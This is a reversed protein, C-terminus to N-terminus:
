FPIEDDVELQQISTEYNTSNNAENEWPDQIAVGNSNHTNTELNQPQSSQPMKSNQEQNQSGLFQINAAMVEVKSKNKGSKDTWRNQRIRGEIVVQRGKKLYKECNVAQNGLVVIDFFNVYEKRENSQMFSENNAISFKTIAISAATYKIEPNRVLRGILIVCNLDKTM